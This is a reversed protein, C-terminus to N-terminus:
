FLELEGNSVEDEAMEASSALSFDLDAYDCVCLSAHFLTSQNVDIRFHQVHGGKLTELNDACHKDLINPTSLGVHPYQRGLDRNFAGSCMNGSECLSDIFAQDTLDAVSTRNRRAFHERTAENPEFYILVFVRFVYSSSTLMVVKSETIAAPNDEKTVECADGSAAIMAGKLAQMISQDFSNKASNSIM